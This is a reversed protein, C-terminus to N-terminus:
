FSYGEGRLFVLVLPALISGGIGIDVMKNRGGTDKRFLAVYGILVKEQRRDEVIRDFVGFGGERFDLLMESLTNGADNPLNGVIFGQRFRLTFPELFFVSRVGGYLGLLELYGVFDAIDPVDHM